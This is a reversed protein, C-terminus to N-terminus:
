RTKANPCRFVIIISHGAEAIRDLPFTVGHRTLTTLAHMGLEGGHRIGALKDYLLTHRPFIPM